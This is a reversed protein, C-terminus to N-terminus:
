QKLVRKILSNFERIFKVLIGRNKRIFQQRKAISKLGYVKKLLKQRTKVLKSKAPPLNLILLNYFIEALAHTQRPTATYLLARAQEASSDLILNIFESNNKINSSM